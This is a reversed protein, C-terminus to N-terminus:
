RKVNFIQHEYIIFIKLGNRAAVYKLSLTERACKYSLIKKLNDSQTLHATVKRIKKKVRQFIWLLCEQISIFISSPLPFGNERKWRIILINPLTDETQSSIETAGQYDGASQFSKELLNM